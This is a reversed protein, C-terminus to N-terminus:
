SHQHGCTRANAMASEALADDWTLEGVRHETRAANHAALWGQVNQRLSSPSSTDLADDAPTDPAGESAITAITAITTATAPAVPTAPATPAITAPGASDALGGLAIAAKGPVSGASAAASPRRGQSPTVEHMSSMSSANALRLWQGADYSAAMGAIGAEQASAAGTETATATASAVNITVVGREDMGASTVGGLGVMARSVVGSSALKTPGPQTPAARSRTVTTTASVLLWLRTGLAGSRM